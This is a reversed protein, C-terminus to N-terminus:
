SVSRDTGILLWGFISHFSGDAPRWKFEAPLIYWDFPDLFIITDIDSDPRALGSAISGIGIVAQVAPEPVLEREIFAM